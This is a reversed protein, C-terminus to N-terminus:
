FFGDAVEENFKMYLAMFKAVFAELHYIAKNGKNLGYEYKAALHTVDAKLQGDCKKVLEKLLGSFHFYKIVYKCLKGM